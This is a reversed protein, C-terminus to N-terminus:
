TPQKAIPPAKPSIARTCCLVIGLLGLNAPKALFLRPSQIECTGWRSNSPLVLAHLCIPCPFALTTTKIHYSALFWVPMSIGHQRSSIVSRFEGIGGCSALNIKKLTFSPSTKTRHKLSVVATWPCSIPARVPNVPRCSPYFMLHSRSHLHALKEPGIDKRITLVSPCLNIM